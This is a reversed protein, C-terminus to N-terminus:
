DGTQRFGQNVVVSSETFIADKDYDIRRTGLRDSTSIQRDVRTITKASTLQGQDGGEQEANIQDGVQDSVVKIMAQTSRRLMPTMAMLVAVVIGILLSYELFTQASERHGFKM